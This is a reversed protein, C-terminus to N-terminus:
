RALHLSLRQLYGQADHHLQIYQHRRALPANAAAMRLRGAVANHVLIAQERRRHKYFGYGIYRKTDRTHSHLLWNYTKGLPDLMM